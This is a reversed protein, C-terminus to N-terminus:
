NAKILTGEWQKEDKEQGDEDWVGKDSEDSDKKWGHRELKAMESNELILHNGSKIEWAQVLQLGQTVITKISQFM